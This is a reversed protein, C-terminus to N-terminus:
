GFLDSQPPKPPPVISPAPDIIDPADYGRRNIPQGIEYATMREAPFPRLLDLPPPAASLWRNYDAPDIIVPMRNHLEAMFDNPNCTLVLYRDQLEGTKPDALERWLGALAFPAKDKMSIWYPAKRGSPMRRWEYFGSAPILCRRQRLYQAYAGSTAAGPARM